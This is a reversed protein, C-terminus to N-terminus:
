CGCTNPNSGIIVNAAPWLGSGAAITLGLKGHALLPAACSLGSSAIRQSEVDLHVAIVVRPPQHSSMMGWYM